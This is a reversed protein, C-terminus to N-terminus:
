FKVDEKAPNPVKLLWTHLEEEVAKLANEERELEIKLKKGEEINQSKAARNREERINQVILSLERYKADIKIIHDIDVVIGKDKASKATKSPNERIYKIDLM